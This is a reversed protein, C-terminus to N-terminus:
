PRIWWRQGKEAADFIALLGAPSDARYLGDGTSVVLGVPGDYDTFNGKTYRRRTSRATPHPMRTGGDCDFAPGTRIRGCEPCTQWYGYRGVWVSM